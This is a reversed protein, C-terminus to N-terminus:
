ARAWAHLGRGARRAKSQGYLGTSEYVVLRGEEERIDLGQTFWAPDHAVEALVAVHDVLVAPRLLAKTSGAHKLSTLDGAPM